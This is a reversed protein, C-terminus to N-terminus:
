LNRIIENHIHEIQTIVSNNDNNLLQYDSETEQLTRENSQLNEIREFDTENLEPDRLKVRKKRQDVDCLVAIISDCSQYLGSTFLIASEVVVVPTDQEEIWNRLHSFLATHVIKEVRERESSLLQRLTDKDLNGEKSVPDIGLTEVMQQRIDQRYYLRKAELDCDYSPIDWLVELCKRVVSKGSGIAGCLGIVHVSSNQM